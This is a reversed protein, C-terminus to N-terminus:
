LFDDLKAMARALIFQNRMSYQLLEVAVEDRGESDRPWAVASHINCQQLAGEFVQIYNTKGRM